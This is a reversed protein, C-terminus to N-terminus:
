SVLVWPAPPRQGILGQTRFFCFTKEMYLSNIKEQTAKLNLTTFAVKPVGCIGSSQIKRKVIHPLRKAAKSYTQCLRVKVMVVM